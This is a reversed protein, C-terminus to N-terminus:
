TLFSKYIDTFKEGAYNALKENKFCLRSGTTRTSTGDWASRGFRFGSGMKFWCYWKKQNSDDWDPEWGDNLAKIIIKLKKYAEEDKTDHKSLVDSVKIGLASCADEFSEIEESEFIEKGYLNELVKKTDDCGESYAKKLNEIKVEPTKAKM